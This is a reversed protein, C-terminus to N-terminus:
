IKEKDEDLFEHCHFCKKATSNIKEGCYPCSKKFLEVMSKKELRNSSM